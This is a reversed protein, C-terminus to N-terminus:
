QVHQKCCPEVLKAAVMMNVLRQQLRIPQAKESNVMETKRYMTNSYHSIDNNTM